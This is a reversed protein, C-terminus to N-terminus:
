LVFKAVASAGHQVLLEPLGGSKDRDHRGHSRITGKM